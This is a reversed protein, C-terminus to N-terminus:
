ILINRRNVLDVLRGFVPVAILYASVFATGQILSFQTDSVALTHKIPDVLLNLLQRDIYALSYALTLVALIYWSRTGDHGVLPPSEHPLTDTSVGGPPTEHIANM